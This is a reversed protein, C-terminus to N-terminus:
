IKRASKLDLRIVVDDRILDDAKGAYVIGFDKRNISFEANVAVDSPTITIVAPFTISRRVGRMELDGTVLFKGAGKAEDPVIRTSVFTSTPYKAVEFFDGTQLHKTLGDADSFVSSMDIEVLVRSTEAREGILDIVGTFTRFGGDHSGTVKSGAFEVKSTQPTIAFITGSPKYASVANSKVGAPTSAINSSPESTQAKPKDAAPDACASLFCAFTLVFFPMSKM